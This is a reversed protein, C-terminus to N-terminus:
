LEPIPRRNMPLFRKCTTSAGAVTAATLAISRFDLRVSREANISSSIKFPSRTFGQGSAAKNLWDFQGDRSRVNRLSRSLGVGIRTLSLLLCAIVALSFDGDM